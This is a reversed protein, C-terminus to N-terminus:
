KQKLCDVMSRATNNFANSITTTPHYVQGKFPHRAFSYFSFIYTQNNQLAQICFYIASPVRRWMPTFWIKWNGGWRYIERGELHLCVHVFSWPPRDRMRWCIEQGAGSGCSGPGPCGIRGPGGNSYDPREFRRQMCKARLLVSGPYGWAGEWGSRVFVKQSLGPVQFLSSAKRGARHPSTWHCWQSVVFLKM